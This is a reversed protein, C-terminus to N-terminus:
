SHAWGDDILFATLMPKLVLDTLLGSVYPDMITRVLGQEGSVIRTLIQTTIEHVVSASETQLLVGETNCSTPALVALELSGM